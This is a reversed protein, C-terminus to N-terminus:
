ACEYDWITIYEGEGPDPKEAKTCLNFWDFLDVARKGAERSLEELEASDVNFVFVAFLSQATPSSGDAWKLEEVSREGTLFDAHGLEGDYGHITGDLVQDETGCALCHIVIGTPSNGTLVEKFGFTGADCNRCRIEYVVTAPWEGTPTPVLTAGLNDLCRPRESTPSAM